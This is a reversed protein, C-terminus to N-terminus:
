PPYRHTNGIMPCGRDRSFQRFKKRVKECLIRGKQLSSKGNSGRPLMVTVGIGKKKRKKKRGEPKSIHTRAKGNGQPPPRGCIYLLLLPVVGKERSAISTEPFM